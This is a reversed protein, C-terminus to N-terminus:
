WVLLLLLSISRCIFFLLAFLHLAARRRRHTQVFRDHGLLISEETLLAVQAVVTGAEFEGLLCMGFVM